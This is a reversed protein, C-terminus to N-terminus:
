EATHPLLESIWMGNQGYQKFSWPSKFVSMTDKNTFPGLRLDKVASEPIREGDHKVLADKYDFLDPQSPAGTMNLFIVRKARPKFHPPKPAFPDTRKQQAFLNEDLLMALGVTGIVGAGSRALFHRRTIEKLEDRPAMEKLRCSM